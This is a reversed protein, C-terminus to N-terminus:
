FRYILGATVDLQGGWGSASFTTFGSIPAGSLNSGAGNSTFVLPPMTGISLTGFGPASPAASRPTADVLTAARNRGIHERVDLRIGWRPTVFRKVGGGIIGVVATSSSARVVTTDTQDFVRSVIPVSVPVLVPPTIEFQYRGVLEASPLGGTRTVIGAGATVYPRTPGKGLNVIMAGSVSVQGGQHDSIAATSTASRSSALLPLALLSNWASVFSARTAEVGALNASTLALPTHLHDVSLEAAFRENLARSVRFGIAAGATRKAFLSQAAVDLPAIQQAVRFSSLAQNLLVAGDGIVWSSVARTATGLNIPLVPGPPPLAGTGSSSSHPLAGGATFDIEWRRDTTSQASAAPSVAVFLLVAAARVDVFRANHRM